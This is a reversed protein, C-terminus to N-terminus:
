PPPLALALTSPLKAQPRRASSATLPAAWAPALAATPASALTQQEGPPRRHCRRLRLPNTKLLNHHMEKLYKDLEWKFRCVLKADEWKISHWRKRNAKFRARTPKRQQATGKAAPFVALLWGRWARTVTAAQTMSVYVSFSFQVYGVSLNKGLITHKM